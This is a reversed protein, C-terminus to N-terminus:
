RTPVWDFHAWGTKIVKCAKCEFKELSQGRGTIHDKTVSNIEIKLTLHCTSAIHEAKGKGVTCPMFISSTGVWKSGSRRCVTRIYAGHRAAAPPLNVWDAYFRDGRIQVQYEKGTTESKWINSPKRAEAQTQTKTPAAQKAAPHESKNSCAACAMALVIALLATPLSRARNM